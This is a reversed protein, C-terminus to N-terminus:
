QTGQQDFPFEMTRVLFRDAPQQPVPDLWTRTLAPNDMRLVMTIIHYAHSAGGRMM